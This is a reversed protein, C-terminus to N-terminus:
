LNLQMARVPCSGICLECAICEEQNFLVQRSEEDIQLAGTPCVGVCVGCHTCRAENRIVDHSLSQIKVGAETLYEIGRDYNDRKGSLELVLLGEEDPTVSAKLINFGLNYDKILRYIIPQDVLRKPFHLVIRRSIAMKSGERDNAKM